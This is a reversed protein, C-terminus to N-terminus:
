KALLRLIPGALLLVIAVALLAENMMQDRRLKRRMAEERAREERLTPEMLKLARHVIDLSSIPSM